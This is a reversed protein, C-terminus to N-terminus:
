EYFIKQGAPLSFLNTDDCNGQYYTNGGDSGAGAVAGTSRNYAVYYNTDPIRYQVQSDDIFSLQMPHKWAGNRDDPCIIEDPFGALTAGTGAAPAVEDTGATWQGGNFKLVQGESPSLGDDVDSLNALSTAAALVARVLPVPRGMVLGALLTLAALCLAIAGTAVAAAYAARRALAFFPSILRM